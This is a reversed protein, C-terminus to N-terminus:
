ASARLYSPPADRYLFDLVATEGMLADPAAYMMAERREAESAFGPRIYSGLKRVHAVFGRGMPLREAEFDKLGSVVDEGKGVCRAMTEADQAVKVIGAGVHPRVVFAADGILCARGIAMAPTEFDYIPQFFPQEILRLAERFQPPLREADARMKAIVERSILPPPISIAHERGSDDTLFRKLKEADTPRYWVINWSRHGPRIDNNQGAAPYGIIQEGPPLHFIFTEVIPRMADSFREEDALGRWGVYGAYVPQADPLLHARVQSRFGDAGVLLDGRAQTGDGFHATIGHADQECRLFEKGLHYHEKPLVENLIEFLRNWSTSIQPRKLRAIEKGEGDVTIRWDFSVGLDTEASRGVDALAQRLEPHTVIGAGRGVLPVSSREFIEVDWGQRLLYLASFVGGISGGIIIARRKGAM